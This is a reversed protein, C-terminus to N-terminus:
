SDTDSKGAVSAGSVSSCNVVDCNEAGGDSYKFSRGERVSRLSSGSWCTGVLAARFTM